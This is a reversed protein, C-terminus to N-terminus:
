AFRKQGTFRSMGLLCEKSTLIEFIHGQLRGIFHGQSWLNLHLRLKAAPWTGWALWAALAFINTGRRMLVVLFMADMVADMEERM